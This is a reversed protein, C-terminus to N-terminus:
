AAPEGVGLKRLGDYIPNSAVSGCGDAALEMGAEIQEDDRLLTSIKLQRVGNQQGNHFPNAAFGDIATNLEAPTFFKLRARIRSRKKDDIRPRRGRGTWTKSVWHDFVEQIDAHDSTPSASESTERKETPTPTTTPTSAIAPSRVNEADVSSLTRLGADAPHERDIKHDGRDAIPDLLPAYKGDLAVHSPPIPTRRTGRRNLWSSQQHLDHGLLHIWAKGEADIWRELLGICVLEDIASAVIAEGMGKKGPLASQLVDWPDASMTGFNDCAMYARWYVVEAPAGVRALKRSTIAGTTVM